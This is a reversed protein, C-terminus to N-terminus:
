KPYKESYCKACFSHMYGESDLKQKQNQRTLETGCVECSLYNNYMRVGESVKTAIAIYEVFFYFSLCIRFCETLIRRSKTSMDSELM